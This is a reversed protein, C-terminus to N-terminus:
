GQQLASAIDQKTGRLFLPFLSQLRAEDSIALVAARIWAPVRGLRNKYILLLSEQRGEKLGEHRGEKLGEHRGEKLGEKLGKQETERLLKEAAKRAATM